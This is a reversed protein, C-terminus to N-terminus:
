TIAGSSRLEQVVTRLKAKHTDLSEKFVNVGFDNSQFILVGNEVKEGYLEEYMIAYASLQLFYKAVTDDRIESRNTKHDIISRIADFDGVTDTRGAVKLEHSYLAGEIVRINDIRDLYPRAQNFMAVIDPMQGKTPFAKNMLYNQAVDHVNQGRRASVAAIRTAEEEGVRQKWADLAPNKIASLVTTISPYYWISEVRYHRKGAIQVEQIDPLKVPNHTFTKALILEVVNAICTLNVVGHTGGFMTM